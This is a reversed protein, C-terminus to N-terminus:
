GSGILWGTLFVLVGGVVVQFVASPFVENGQLTKVGRKLAVLYRTGGSLPKLPEILVRSRQSSIPGGADRAPSPQITFDIGPKLVAGTASNVILLNATVTSFDVFGLLDMFISATTSFGDQLNAATVFPVKGSNPINLTPDNFGSFLGDFPFPITASDAPNIPVPDFLALSGFTQPSTGANSDLNAQNGNGGGGCAALFFVSAACAAMCVSKKPM